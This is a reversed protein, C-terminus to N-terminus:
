GGITREGPLPAARSGLTGQTKLDRRTLRREAASPTRDGPRSGRLTGPAMRVTFLVSQGSARRLGARTGRGAPPHVDPAGFGPPGQGGASSPDTSRQGSAMASVLNGPPAAGRYGGNTPTVAPDPGGERPGYAAARRRGHPRRGATGANRVPASPSETPAFPHGSPPGGTRQPHGGRDPPLRRGKRVVSREQDGGPPKPSPHRAVAEEPPRRARARVGR